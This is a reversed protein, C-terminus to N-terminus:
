VWAGPLGAGSAATGDKNVEITHPAESPDVVGEAKCYEVQDRRNFIKKFVPKDQTGGFSRKCAVTHFGRETDKRHTEGKPNDYCVLDRLWVVRSLSILRRTEGGCDECPPNPTEANRLLREVRQAYRACESNLCSLEFLPM